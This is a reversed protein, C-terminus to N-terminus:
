EDGDEEDLYYLDDDQQADEAPEDVQDRVRNERYQTYASRVATYFDFAAEREARISELAAARDNVTDVATAPATVYIPIPVFFTVIGVTSGLALGTADRPSSPGLLPIVWYPGPPVGWYGLTQGFDEDSEYVDFHSAVDILGGVGYATNMAFRWLTEYAKMPKAQLLENVMRVPMALNDFFHGISRQAVEPVARDWGTAVPELFWRDVGENFGFVRRNMPEWPDGPTGESPTGPADVDAQVDAPGPAEGADAAAPPALLLFVLLRAAKHLATTV